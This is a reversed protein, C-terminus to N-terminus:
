RDASNCAVGDKNIDLHQYFAYWQTSVHAGSSGKSDFSSAIGNAWEWWNNLDSCAFDLPMAGTNVPLGHNSNEAEAPLAVSSETEKWWDDSFSVFNASEQTLEGSCDWVEPCYDINEFTKISENSTYINAYAEDFKVYFEQLTIGIADQFAQEIDKGEGLGSWIKILSDVDTNAVIYETAMQGMWYHEPPVPLDGTGVEHSKLSVSPDPLYYWPELYSVSYDAVGFSDLAAYGIFEANGELMWANNFGKSKGALLTGSEPYVFHQVSHFLEHPIISPLSNSVGLEGTDKTPGYGVWALHSVGCGTVYTEESTYHCITNDFSVLSNESITKNLYDGQLGVVLAFDDTLYEDFASISQASLDEIWEVNSQGVAEDIYVSKQDTEGGQKFFEKAKDLATQVLVERTLNSPWKTDFPSPAEAATLRVVPEEPFSIEQVVADSCGSLFIATAIALTKKM